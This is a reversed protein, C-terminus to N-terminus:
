RAPTVLDIACLTRRSAASVRHHWTRAWPPWTAGGGGGDDDDSDDEDLEDDSFDPDESEDLEVLLEEVGAAAADLQNEDNDVAASDFASPPTGRQM